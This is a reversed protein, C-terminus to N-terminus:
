VTQLRVKAFSPNNTSVNQNYRANNNSYYNNIVNNNVTSTNTQYRSAISDVAGSIDGRNLKSVFGTGLAKMVSRKIIGEGPTLMAPVTDTGKAKFMGSIGGGSLYQPVVGGRSLMVAEGNNALDVTLNPTKLNDLNNQIATVQRAIDTSLNDVANSFSTSLSNGFTTGINSFQNNKSSINGIATDVISGLDGIGQEFGSRLQEGYSRGVLLFSGKKNRLTALLDNIIKLIATGIRAKKFGAIIQKGWDQGVAEFKGALANLDDILTKFSKILEKLSDLGEASPFENIMTILRKVQEITDTIEGENVTVNGLANLRNAINILQNVAKEVEELQKLKLIQGVWHALDSSGIMSLIVNLKSINRIAEDYLLSTRGIDNISKGIDVFVSLSEAVEKLEQKKFFSGIITKLSGNGIYEIITNIEDINDIATEFDPTIEGLEELANALAIIYSIQVSANALEGNGLAGKFLNGIKDLIGDSHDALYDVIRQILTINNIVQGANFEAKEFDKFLDALEIFQDITNQVVGINLDQIINSFLDGITTGDFEKLVDEFEQIKEEIGEPIVAEEKFRELHEALEIFNDIVSIIVATNIAGLLNNFVGSITGLDAENFAELVQVMADIKEIVSSIDSPVKEDVQKIAEAVLILELAIGAVAALGAVIVIGGLGGTLAIFAGVATVILGMAGIAAAITGLKLAFATSIEPVKDDVQKLAEAILILDIAITAVTALGAIASTPDSKALKGAIAALLGIEVIASGISALKLAFGASIEPVKQDVDQLAQAAEQIIKVIAYISAINILKDLHKNWDVGGLLSDDTDGSGKNGFLSPLKFNTFKGFLKLAKGVVKLGVGVKILLGPLKGLGTSFDGDGLYSIFDKLRELLPQIGNWLGIAYGKFENFSEKLGNWVNGWNIKSLKERVLNVKEFINDIFGVINDQNDEIIQGVRKLGNEFASGISTFVGGVSGFSTKSLIDDFSSIISAVGRSIATRANQMSTAIGGTAKRALSELSELGGGGNENLDILADQFQEVSITGKSLDQRLEDTTRGFTKALANLTPTLGAKVFSNWTQGDIKGQGFSNSLLTVTRNVEDASGGFGLVANNLASYTKVSKGMDGTTSTLLQTQTVADDLATPLGNISETLNEIETAAVESDIGIAEFVLNSNNLTDIRSIASGVSSTVANIGKDVLNLVAGIGILQNLKSTLPNFLNLVKNGLNDLASGVQEINHSINISPNASSVSKLSTSINNIEYDVDTFNNEINIYTNSNDINNLMNIINIIEENANNLDDTEINVNEKQKSIDNLDKKLDEVASQADLLDDFNFNLEFKEKGLKKLQKELENLEKLVDDANTDIRIDINEIAM